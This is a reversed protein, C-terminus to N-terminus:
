RKTITLDIRKLTYQEDNEVEMEASQVKYGRGEVKEKLDNKLSTKYIEKIQNENQNEIENHLTGNNKSVEIYEDLDFIDSVRFDNGTFKSIVPSVM